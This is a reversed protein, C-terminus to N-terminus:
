DKKVFRMVVIDGTMLNLTTGKSVSYTSIKRHAELFINEGVGNACIMRTMAIPEPFYIKNGDTNFRGNFNNCGTNGSIINNTVDFTISPKKEPYLSDIRIDSGTIDILEWTGKLESENTKTTAAKKTSSCTVLLCCLVFLAIIEKKVVYNKKVM